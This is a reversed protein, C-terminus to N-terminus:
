LFLVRDVEDLLAQLTEKEQGSDEIEELHRLISMGSTSIIIPFTDRKNISTSHRRLLKPFTRSVRNEEM